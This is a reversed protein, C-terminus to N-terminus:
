GGGKRLRAVPTLGARVVDGKHVLVDVDAVPFYMDLRSGFKMMGIRDARALSQGPQLWYVVRRVVPGVIQRVMCRTHEGEIVITSHENVESARNDLTLVHRGPSYSLHSVQGAMPSRNVHVNFPSLFVSIRVCDVGLHKQMPITEVARVLGDAGAVFLDEGPPPLREPDRFFYLMFLGGVAGLALVALASVRWGLANLGAAVLIAGVPLGLILSWGDKVIALRMPHRNLGGFVALYKSNNGSQVAARLPYEM